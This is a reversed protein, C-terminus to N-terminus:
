LDIGLMVYYPCFCILETTRHHTLPAILEHVHFRPAQEFTIVSASSARADVGASGCPLLLLLVVVVLAVAEGRVGTGVYRLCDLKSRM